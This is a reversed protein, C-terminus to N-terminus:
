AVNRFALEIGTTRETFRMGDVPVVFRWGGAGYGALLGERGEFAGSAGASAVRYVVGLMPAAPPAGIPVGEISGNVLLDITALAGHMIM